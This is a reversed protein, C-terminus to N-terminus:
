PDQGLLRVILYALTFGMLRSLNKRVTRRLRSFYAERRDVVALFRDADQNM